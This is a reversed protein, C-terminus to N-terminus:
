GYIKFLYSDPLKSISRFDIRDYRYKEISQIFSNYNEDTFDQRNKKIWSHEKEDTSMIDLPWVDEIYYVGTPKLFEKLNEFTKQNAYPTHLGDDIIYDFQVNPWHTNIMPRLELSMSDCQLWKVRPHQLIDINEPLIREFTDIGYITANEFYEIWSKTSIGKFIGVELINLPDKKKPGFEKEYELYYHHSRKISSGKDSQNKNLIDDLTQM